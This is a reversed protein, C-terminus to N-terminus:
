YARASGVFSLLQEKLHEPDYSEQVYILKVHYKQCLRYKKQDRQRTKEFAEQGGFYEVPKNHQQGQYELAIALQPIFIDLHQQRLWSPRAHQIVQHEPFWKRVKYYLETESVWGEGVRPIGREERVTNEAERSLDRIIQEFEPIEYFHYIPEQFPILYPSGTFLYHQNTKLHTYKGVIYPLPDSQHDHAWTKLLSDLCQAVLEINMRGFSTLRKLFITLVDDANCTKNALAKLNLRWNALFTNTSSVSIDPFIELAKTFDGEITSLDSLYWRAYFDSFAPHRQRFDEIAERMHAVASRSPYSSRTHQISAHSGLHDCLLTNWEEYIKNTEELSRPSEM